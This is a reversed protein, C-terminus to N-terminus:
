KSVPKLQTWTAGGDTTQVLTISDGTKAVMWGATQDIFDLQGEGGLGSVPQWVQGGNETLFVRGGGAYWGVGPNLFQIYDVLAAETHSSWTEGANTSTYLFTQAVGPGFDNCRVVVWATQGAFGPLYSGCSNSENTYIDPLKAPIPLRVPNWTSGGDTTRYLYISNPVVGVCDGSVLGTNADAFDLGTKTCSTNLNEMYPDSIRKWTKGGDPTSFLFVYDHNMGNGTHLLLFGHLMDTFQLVGPVYFDGGQGVDLPASTSWNQGGDVTYWILPPKAAAPGAMYQFAVWAHGADAFFGTAQKRLAMSSDFSDPPTVDIWTTGGDQTRLVHDNTDTSGTGIAWGENKSFMHINSIMPQDGPSLLGLQGAPRQPTVPLTATSTPLPPFTESPTPSAGGFGGGFGGQGGGGPFTTGEARQTLRQPNPTGGRRTGQFGPTGGFGSGGGNLGAPQTAAPQCSALLVITLILIISLSLKRIM